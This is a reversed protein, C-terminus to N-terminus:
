IYINVSDKEWIFRPKKGTKQAIIYKLAARNSLYSLPVNKILVKASDYVHLSAVISGIFGKNLTSDASGKRCFIGLRSTTSDFQVKIQTYHPQNQSLYHALQATYKAYSQRTELVDASLIINLSDNNSYYEILATLTKRIDEGIAKRLKQFDELTSNGIVATYVGEEGCTEFLSSSPHVLRPEAKGNAVNCTPFLGPPVHGHQDYYNTIELAREYNKAQKKDM